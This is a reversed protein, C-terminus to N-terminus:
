DYLMCAHTHTHTHRHTHTHTHKHTHTHTNTYKRGRVPNSTLIQEVAEMVLERHRAIWKPFDGGSNVFRERLCPPLSGEEYM